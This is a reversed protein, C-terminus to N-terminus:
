SAAQFEPLSITLRLGGSAARGLSINGGHAEAVGRAIALGLGAGGTGRNRSQELRVFPEMISAHESPDIGPGDDEVVILISREAITASIGARHGYKIANDVVNQILRRLAVPDGIISATLAAASLHLSVDAGSSRREEAERQLIPAIEVLEEHRLPADAQFALLSDDILRSMDDLDAIAKAREAENPILEARLRLRTVYTRLDHSIGGVLAMRNRLLSTVRATLRNFAAILGRIEPASRPADPISEDDRGIRVDDVASALELLPRAERKLLYLALGAVATGLIGAWFGPPLGLISLSQYGSGSVLLREGSKLAVDIEVSGPSAWALFQAPGELLETSPEIRVKVDRGGLASLYRRLIFDVVPAEFWDPERSESTGDALRVSVDASNAARLVQTWRERPLSELLEVLAAAQDPLPLRLGSDNARNRQQVVTFIAILQVVVLSTLFIIVLRTGFGLRMM